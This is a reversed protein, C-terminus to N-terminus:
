KLREAIALLVHRHLKTAASTGKLKVYDLVQRTGGSSTQAPANRFMKFVCVAIYTMLFLPNHTQSGDLPVIVYKGTTRFKDGDDIPLVIAKSFYCLSICEYLPEFGNKEDMM